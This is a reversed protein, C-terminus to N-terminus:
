NALFELLYKETMKSSLKDDDYNIMISSHYLICKMVHQWSSLESDFCIQFFLYKIIVQTMQNEAVWTLLSFFSKTQKVTSTRLNKFVQQGSLYDSRTQGTEQKSLCLKLELGSLWCRMESSEVNLSMPSSITYWDRRREDAQHGDTLM